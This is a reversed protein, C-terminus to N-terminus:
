KEGLWRKYGRNVWGGDHISIMPVSYPHHSAVLRSARRAAKMDGGSSIDSLSFSQSGANAQFGETQGEAQKEERFGTRNNGQTGSGVFSSGAQARGQPMGGAGSTEKKM